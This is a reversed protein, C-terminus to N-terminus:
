GHPRDLGHFFDMTDGRITDHRATDHRETGHRATSHRVIDHRVTGYRKTQNPETQNLTTHYPVRRFTLPSPIVYQQKRLRSLSSCLLAYYLVTSSLLSTCLSRLCLFLFSMPFSHPSLAKLSLSELASDPLSDNHRLFFNRGRRLPRLASLRSADPPIM